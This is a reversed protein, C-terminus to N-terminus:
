LQTVYETDYIIIFKTDFETRQQLLLNCIHWSDVGMNNEHVIRFSLLNLPEDNLDWFLISGVSTFYAFQWDLIAVYTLDSIIPIHLLVDKM